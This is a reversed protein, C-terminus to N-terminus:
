LPVVVVLCGYKIYLNENFLRKLFINPWLFSPFINHFVTFPITICIPISVEEKALSCVEVLVDNSSYKGSIV